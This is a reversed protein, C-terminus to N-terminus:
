DKNNTSKCEWMIAIVAGIFIPVMIIGPMKPSLQVVPVASVIATIVGVLWIRRHSVAEQIKM